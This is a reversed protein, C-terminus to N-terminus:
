EAFYESASKNRVVQKNLAVIEPHEALYSIIDASSFHQNKPYLGEFLATLMAYDEPTDLTLHLSPETAETPAIVNHLRYREPRRYVFLGVHEREEASTVLSNSELLADISFVQTDMGVPYTRVLANSTYDAEERLHEDICQQIAAPDIAICDSSLEVLVDAHHERAAGAVRSLVDHESGRFVPYGLRRALAVIPEDAANTTTAVVIETLGVTRRVRELMLELSPRGLISKLVKGPLRTSTMRAAVTCVIRSM